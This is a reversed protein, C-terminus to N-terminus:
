SLFPQLVRQFADLNRSRGEPSLIPNAIVDFFYRWQEDILLEKEIQAIMIPDNEHVGCGFAGLILIQDGHEVAIQIIKRMRNKMTNRILRKTRNDRCLSVNVAASTIISILFPQDLLMHNDDRFYPVAPSYIMYDTYLPNSDSNGRQYM